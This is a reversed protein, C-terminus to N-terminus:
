RLHKYRPTQIAKLASWGRKTRYYLIKASVVCRSDLEWDKIHQTKDFATLVCSTRKNRKNQTSSVFRLNGREYNGNNDKRDIQFGSAWGLELCYNCFEVFGNKFLFKIGRGGYHKFSSNNPNNCRSKAGKYKRYLEAYITKYGGRGQSRLCGCSRTSGILLRNKQVLVRNGCECDCYFRRIKGKSFPAFYFPGEAFVTLRGFTKGIINDM